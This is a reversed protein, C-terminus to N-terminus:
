DKKTLEDLVAKDVIFNQTNILTAKYKTLSILRNSNCLQELDALIYEDSKNEYTRQGEMCFAYFKAVTIILEEMTRVKNANDIM